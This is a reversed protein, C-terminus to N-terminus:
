KVGPSSSAGWFANYKRPSKQTIVSLRAVWFRTNIQKPQQNINVKIAGFIKLNTRLLFLNTVPFSLLVRHTLSRQLPKAPTGLSLASGRPWDGMASMKLYERSSSPMMTTHLFVSGDSVHTGLKCEARLRRGAARLQLETM